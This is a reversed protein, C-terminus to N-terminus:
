FRGGQGHSPIPISSSATEGSAGLVPNIQKNRSRSCLAAPPLLGLSSAPAPLPCSHAPLPVEAETSQGLLWATSLPSPLGFQATHMPCAFMSGRNAPSRKATTDATSYGPDEPCPCLASVGLATPSSSHEMCFDCTVKLGLAIGPKMTSLLLCSILFLFGGGGEWELLPAFPHLPTCRIDESSWPGKEHCLM